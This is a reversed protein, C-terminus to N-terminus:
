KVMLPTNLTALARWNTLGLSILQQEKLMGATGGTIMGMLEALTVGGQRQLQYDVLAKYFDAWGSMGLKRWPLRELQAITSTDGAIAADLMANLRAFAPFGQSKMKRELRKLKM